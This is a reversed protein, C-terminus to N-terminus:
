ILIIDEAKEDASFVTELLIQGSKDDFLSAIGVRVYLGKEGECEALILGTIRSTHSVHLYLLRTRYTEGDLDLKGYAFLGLAGSALRLDSPYFRRYPGPNSTRQLSHIGKVLGRVKLCGRIGPISGIQAEFLDLVEFPNNDWIALHEPVTRKTGSLVSDPVNTYAELSAWSWTPARYETPKVPDGGIPVVCWLLERQIYPRWMGAFSIYDMGSVEKMEEAISRIAALKDSSKTLTRRCYEGLLLEWYDYIYNMTLDRGRPWMLRGALEMEQTPENEESKLCSRCEFFIKNRCFHISRTSLSREQMTWGRTNWKAGDIAHMRHSDESNELRSMVFYHDTKECGPDATQTSYRVRLSDIKEIDRALFGDHSSTAATAVITVDAYRYVMHMLKAQEEWDSSSDQVICLSDIWVYPIGLQAAVELAEVFNKPVRSIEIGEKFERLNYTLTRLPPKVTADGWMHSLAAFPRRERFFEDSTEVLRVSQVGRKNYFEVLRAPVWHHDFPPCKPHHHKCDAIWQRMM